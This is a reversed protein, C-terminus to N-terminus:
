LVEYAAGKFANFNKPLYPATDFGLEITDDEEIYMINELNSVVTSYANFDKPLYASTNFGLEIEVDDDIYVIDELDFVMGDYPNFDYPLYDATDFGLNVTEEDEIYVVDEITLNDTQDQSLLKEEFQMNMETLLFSGHADNNHCTHTGVFSLILTSLIVIGLLLKAKKM